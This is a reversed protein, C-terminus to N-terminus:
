FLERMGMLKEIFDDPSDSSTSNMLRDYVNGLNQSKQECECIAADCFMGLKNSRTYPRGSTECTINIHGPVTETVKYGKSAKTKRM